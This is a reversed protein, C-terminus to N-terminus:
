LRLESHNIYKFANPPLQELEEKYIEILKNYNSMEADNMLCYSYQELKYYKCLDDIVKTLKNYLEGLGFLKVKSGVIKKSITFELCNDASLLTIDSVITDDLDSTLPMSFLRRCERKINNSCQRCTEDLVDKTYIYERDGISYKYYMTMNRIFVIKDISEVNQQKIALDLMGKLRNANCYINRIFPALIKEASQNRKWESYFNVIYFFIIAAIYSIIINRLFDAILDNTHCFFFKLLFSEGLLPLESERILLVLAFILSISLKRYTNFFTRLRVIMDKVENRNNQLFIWIKVIYFVGIHM